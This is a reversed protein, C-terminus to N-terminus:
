KSKEKYKKLFAKLHKQSKGIFKDLDTQFTKLWTESPKVPGAELRAITSPKAM